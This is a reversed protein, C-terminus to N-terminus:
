QLEFHRKQTSTHGRPLWCISSFVHSWQDCTSLGLQSYCTISWNWPSHLMLLRTQFCNWIWNDRKRSKGTTYLLGVNHRGYRSFYNIRGEKKLTSTPSPYMHLSDLLSCADEIPQPQHKPPYADTGLQKETRASVEYPSPVATLAGLRAQVTWIAANPAWIM